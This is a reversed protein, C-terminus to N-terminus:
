GPTRQIIRHGPSTSRIHIAQQRSRGLSAGNMDPHGPTRSHMLRHSAKLSELAALGQTMPHQLHGSGREGSGTSGSLASPQQGTVIHLDQM